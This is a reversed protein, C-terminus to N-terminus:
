RTNVVTNRETRAMNRRVKTVRWSRANTIKGGNEDFYVSDLRFVLGNEEYRGSVLSEIVSHMQFAFNHTGSLIAYNENRKGNM